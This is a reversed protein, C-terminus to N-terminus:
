EVVDIPQLEVDPEDEFHSYAKRLKRKTRRSGFKEPTPTARSAGTWPTDCTLQRSERATGAGTGSGTSGDSQVDVDWKSADDFNIGGCAPTSVPEAAGRSLKGVSSSTRQQGGHRQQRRRSWVWLAIGVLSLFALGLGTQTDM